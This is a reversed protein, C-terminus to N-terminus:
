GATAERTAGGERSIGTRCAAAGGLERATLEARLDRQISPLAVTVVTNDLTTIFGALGVVLVM